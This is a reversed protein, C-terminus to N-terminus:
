REDDEDVTREDDEVDEDDEADIWDAYKEEDPTDDSFPDHSPQRDAGLEAALRSLDTNPGGYKLERAVKQQKAKARGRGM